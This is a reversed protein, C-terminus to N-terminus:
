PALVSYSFEWNNNIIGLSGIIILKKIFKKQSYKEALITLSSWFYIIWNKIMLVVKGEGQV